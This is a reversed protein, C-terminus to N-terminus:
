PGAELHYVDGTITTEYLEGRADAHISSPGNPWTGPLSVYTVSGDAQRQAKNLPHAVNDTFFYYGVLDPYCAGRYVQGGIIARFPSNCVTTPGPTCTAGPATRNFTQKPFAMGTMTCTYNGYCQDAEWMSWGMNRGAQQGAPLLDLEEVVNQGVDGIWMDGTGRDFSWRWPNRLGIMYAEPTPSTAFPNDAPIGYPKGNAPHHVDIRLMKGLLTTCQSGHAVCDASAPDLNQANRHPDGGAGGDGTTVYLYGDAGFEIMGANHNTAFDPVTILVLASNPDAQDLNTASATYRALVNTCTSGPCPGTTYWVYLYNNQWYLPDFALGLLGQEGGAAFSPVGSVDLFPTPKLQENEFIYIQGGQGVVFLRGDNPPSTVLLASGPIQGIKRLSVTSGSVPTCAPLAPADVTPGAEVGAEPAPSNGDDHAHSNGCAACIVLVLGLHRM